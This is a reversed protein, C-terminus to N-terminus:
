SINDACIDGAKLPDCTNDIIEHLDNDFSNSLIPSMPPGQKVRSMALFRRSTVNYGSM